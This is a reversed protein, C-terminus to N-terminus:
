CLFVCYIVSMDQGLAFLPSASLYERIIHCQNKSPTISSASFYVSARSDQWYNISNRQLVAIDKKFEVPVCVCQRSYLQYRGPNKSPKTQGQRKRNVSEKSCSSTCTGSSTRFTDSKSDCRASTVNGEECKSSACRSPSPVCVCSIVCLNYILCFVISQRIPFLRNLITRAM